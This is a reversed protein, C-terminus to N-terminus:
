WSVFVNIDGDSDAIHKFMEYWTNQIELQWHESKYAKNPHISLMANSDNSVEGMFCNDLQWHWFDLYPTELWDGQEVDTKFEKFWIQSSGQDLGSPDTKGYKKSKHWDNFDGTNPYFHKGCARQDYGLQANVMDVMENLRYTIPMKMPKINAPLIQM